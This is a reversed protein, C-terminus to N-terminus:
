EPSIGRQDAFKVVDDGIGYISLMKGPHQMM